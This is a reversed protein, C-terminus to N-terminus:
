PTCKRHVSGFQRLIALYKKIEVPVKPMAKTGNCRECVLANIKFDLKIWPTDTPKSM